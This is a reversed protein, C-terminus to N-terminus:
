RLQAATGKWRKAEGDELTDHVSRLWGDLVLVPRGGRRLITVTLGTARALARAAAELPAGRVIASLTGRSSWADRTALTDVGQMELAAVLGSVAVGRVDLKLSIPKEEVFPAIEVVGDRVEWSCLRRAALDDLLARATGSRTAIPATADLDLDLVANVRADDLEDAFSAFTRTAVASIE